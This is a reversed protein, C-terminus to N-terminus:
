SWGGWVFLCVLLYVFGWVKCGFLFSFFIGLLVFLVFCFWYYFVSKPATGGFGALAPLVAMPRLDCGIMM